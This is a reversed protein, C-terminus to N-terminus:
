ARQEVSGTRIVQLMLAHDVRYIRALQVVRERGLDGLGEELALILKTSSLGLKQAVQEVTLGGDDRWVKLVAARRRRM